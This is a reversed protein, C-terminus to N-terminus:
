LKNILEFKKLNDITQIYEANMGELINNLYEEDRTNEFYFIFQIPSESRLVRGHKQTFPREKSDLQAIIGAEIDKLNQGETLMGVCFLRNIEKNQFSEIIKANNKNKSHIAEKRGIEKTQNISTLFCIFRREGLKDVLEKVYPTKIEGLFRKRQSGLNMWKNHSGRTGLRMHLRKFYEISNNLYDNKEKETCTINLNVSPYKLKNTKYGWLNSFDCNITVRKEKKGWSEKIIQNKNVDDLQLPIIYIDPQPIIGAEIATKISISSYYHNDSLEGFTGCILDAIQQYELTASLAIIKKVSLTTLIERRLDSIRHAEDLIILDFSHNRYNKLSAYCEIITNELLSEKNFKKYEDKWNAIHSIEAVLLLTTKPKTKEQVKIASLSKGLGTCHELIILKKDSNEVVEEQINDKTM